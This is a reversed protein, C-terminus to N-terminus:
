FYRVGLSIPITWTRQGNAMIAMWRGELFMDQSGIHFDVGGGVNFGFKDSWSADNANQFCKGDRLTFDCNDNASAELAVRRYRNYNLGGIGYPAWGGFRLPTLKLDGALHLILSTGSGQNVANWSGQEKGLQSVAGDLRLGLPSRRSEWGLAGGVHFGKTYIWDIEDAPATTGAFIGWFMDGRPEGACPVIREIATRVTDVRVETLRLTDVRTVYVTDVRPPLAVEGKSVSIRQEATTRLRVTDQQQASSPNGVASTILAAMAGCAISRVRM